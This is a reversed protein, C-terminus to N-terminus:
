TVREPVIEVMKALAQLEFSVKFIGRTIKNESLVFHNGMAQKLHYDVEYPAVERSTLNNRSM